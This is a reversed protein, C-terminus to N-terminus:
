LIVDLSSLDNDTHPVLSILLGMHLQPDPLKRAPTQAPKDLATTDENEASKMKTTLCSKVGNTDDDGLSDKMASALKKLLAACDEPPVKDLFYLFETEEENTMPACWSADTDSMPSEGSM